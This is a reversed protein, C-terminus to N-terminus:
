RIAFPNMNKKDRLIRDYIAEANADFFRKMDVNMDNVGAMSKKVNKLDVESMTWLTYTRPDKWSGIIRANALHASASNKMQWSVAEKLQRTIVEEMHNAFEVQYSMADRIERAASDRIRSTVADKFESSVADKFQRGIADNVQASIGDKIQKVAADEVHRAVADESYSSDGIRSSQLYENGVIDLYTVLQKVLEANARDEAISKQLALDGQPNASSVGYFMRTDKSGDTYSGKNVWDPAGKIIPRPEQDLPEFACGSIFAGLMALFLWKNMKILINM